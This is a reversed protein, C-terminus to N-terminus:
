WQAAPAARYREGHRIKSQVHLSKALGGAAGGPLEGGQGAGGAGGGDGGHGGGEVGSAILEAGGVGVIDGAGAGGAEGLRKDLTQHDVVLDEAVHAVAEGFDGGEGIGDAADELAVGPGVAQAHHADAHRQPDDPQDVFRAWFTVVSAALTQRL